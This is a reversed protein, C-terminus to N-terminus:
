WEGDDKVEKITPLPGWHGVKHGDGKALADAKDKLRDAKGELESYEEKKAKDKRDGADDKLKEYLKEARRYCKAANGYRKAVAEEKAIQMVLNADVPDIRAKEVVFDALVTRLRAQGEENAVKAGTLAPVIKPGMGRLKEEAAARKGADDTDFEKVAADVKARDEASLDESRVTRNSVLALVCLTFAAFTTGRIM